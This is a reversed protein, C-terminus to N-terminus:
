TCHTSLYMCNTWGDTTQEDRGTAIMTQQQQQQEEWMVIWLTWAYVDLYGLVHGLAGAPLVVVDGRGHPHTECGLAAWPTACLCGGMCVYWLVCMGAALM